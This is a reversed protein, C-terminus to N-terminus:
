KHAGWCRRSPSRRSPSRWGRGGAAVALPAVIGAQNDERRRRASRVGRTGIGRALVYRRQVTGDRGGFRARGKRRGERGQRRGKKGARDGGRGKSSEKIAEGERSQRRGERGEGSKEGRGDRHFG